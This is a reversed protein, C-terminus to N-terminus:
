RKQFDPSGMLLGAMTDLPTEPTDILFQQGYGGGGKKGYLAAADVKKMKAQGSTESAAMSDGSSMNAADATKAFSQAAQKQV